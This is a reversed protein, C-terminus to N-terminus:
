KVKMNVWKRAEVRAREVRMEGGGGEGRWWRRREVVM